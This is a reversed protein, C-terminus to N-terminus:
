YVEGLPFLKASKALSIKAGEDVGRSALGAGDKCQSSNPIKSRGEFGFLNRGIEVYASLDGRGVQAFRM